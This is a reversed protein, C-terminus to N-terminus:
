RLTARHVLLFGDPDNVLAAAQVGLLRAPDDWSRPPAPAVRWLLIRRPPLGAPWDPPAAPASLLDRVPGPRDAAILWGDRMGMAGDPGMHVGDGATPFASLLRRMWPERDVEALFVGDGALVFRDGLARVFPKV